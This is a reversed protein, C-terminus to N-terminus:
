RNGGYEILQREYAPATETAASQIRIVGFPVWAAYWTSSPRLTGEDIRCAEFDGAPVSIKERIGQRKQCYGEIDAIYLSRITSGMRNTIGRPAEVGDHRIAFALLRYTDREENVADIRNKETFGSSDRTITYDGVQPLFPLFVTNEAAANMGLLLTTTLAFLSKM